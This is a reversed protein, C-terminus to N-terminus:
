PRRCERNNAQAEEYTDYYRLPQGCGVCTHWHCGTDRNHPSRSYFRTGCLAVQDPIKRRREMERIARRGIKDLEAKRKAEAKAALAAQEAAVMDREFSLLSQSPCSKM